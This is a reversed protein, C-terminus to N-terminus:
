RTSLCTAAPVRPTTSPPRCRPAPRSSAVAPSSPPPRLPASPLVPSCRPCDASPAIPAAALTSHRQPLTSLHRQPHLSAPKSLNRAGRASALAPAASAGIRACDDAARMSLKKHDAIGTSPTVRGACGCGGGAEYPRSKRVGPLDSCGGEVSALVDGGAAMSSRKSTNSPSLPACVAGFFLLFRWAFPTTLDGLAGLAGLAGLSSAAMVSTGSAPLSDGASASFSFLANCFLCFRSASGSAM